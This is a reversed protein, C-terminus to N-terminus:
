LLSLMFNWAEREELFAIMQEVSKGDETANGCGGLALLGLIALFSIRKKM